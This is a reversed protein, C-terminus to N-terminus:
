QAAHEGTHRRHKRAQRERLRPCGADEEPPSRAPDKRPVEAESQGPQKPRNRIGWVIQQRLVPPFDVRFANLLAAHDAGTMGPPRPWAPNQLRVTGPEAGVFGEVFMSLRLVAAGAGEFEKIVKFAAGFADPQLFAM